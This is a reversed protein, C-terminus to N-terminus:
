TSKEFCSRNVIKSTFSNIRPIPYLNNKTISNLARYDDFCQYDGHSKSISYISSTWENESLSLSVLNKIILITREVEFKDASIQPTKVFGRIKVVSYRDLTNKLQIEM